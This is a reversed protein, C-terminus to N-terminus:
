SGLPMLISSLKVAPSASPMSGSSIAESRMLDQNQFVVSRYVQDAAVQGGPSAPLDGVDVVGAATGERLEGLPDIAGGAGQAREVNCALLANRDGHEIAAVPRRQEEARDLGADHRHRHVCEQRRGIVFVLQAVAPRPRKEDRLREELIELRDDLMARTQLM